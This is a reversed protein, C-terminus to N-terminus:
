AVSVGPNWRLSTEVLNQSVPFVFGPDTKGRHSHNSPLRYVPIEGFHPKWLIKLSPSSSDATFKVPSRPTSRCSKSISNAPFLNKQPIEISFVHIRTWSISLTMTSSRADIREHFLSRLSILLSDLLLPSRKQNRVNKKTVPLQFLDWLSIESFYRLITM